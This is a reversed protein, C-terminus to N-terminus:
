YRLLGGINGHKELTPNNHLVEVEGGNQLVKRVALEVADTIKEFNAGCFDCNEIVQATVYGCSTCRYGEARFGESILLNQVRGEHITRLTDGLGTIGGRKKAAGTIVAELLQQERKEEFQRGIEMARTMVEGHSATMSIPFTGVILSQWTKPLHNRFPTINDETGGILVRRINNESFFQAAFDAVDKMNREAIGETHYTQGAEGSRRGAAQSGGGHKTKRISEGLIGEQETLEGLHFSFLRGGQKDVLAVGYGGYSDLLDALPKVHPRNSIRVRSRVSVAIPFARFFNEPVCSFIAVSRGTWDYEHDFYREIIMRDKPLDVEKLNSRLKLKYVDSSGLAPDTNLYVSLIPYQAEYDLLVQLDRETLMTHEKRHHQLHDLIHQFDCPLPDIRPIKKELLYLKSLNAWEGM